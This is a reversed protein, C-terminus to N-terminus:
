AYWVGEWAVSNALSVVAPAGLFDIPLQMLEAIDLVRPRMCAPLLNGTFQKVSPLDIAIPLPDPWTITPMYFRLGPYESKPRGAYGPRGRKSKSREANSAKSKSIGDPCTYSNFSRFVPNSEWRRTQNTSGSPHTVVECTASTSPWFMAQLTMRLSRQSSFAPLM